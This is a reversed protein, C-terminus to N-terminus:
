GAPLVERVRERARAHVQIRVVRTNDRLNLVGLLHEVRDRVVHQSRHNAVVSRDVINILQYQAGVSMEKHWLAEENTVVNQMRPPVWDCLRLHSERSIMTSSYECVTYRPSRTCSASSWIITTSTDDNRCFTSCIRLVSPPAGIGNSPAAKATRSLCVPSNIGRCGARNLKRFSGYMWQTCLCPLLKHVRDGDNKEQVVDGAIPRPLPVFV